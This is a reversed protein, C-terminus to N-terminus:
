FAAALATVLLAVGGLRPRNMLPIEEAHAPIYVLAGPVAFARRKGGARYERSETRPERSEARPEPESFDTSECSVGASDSKVSRHRLIGTGHGAGHASSSGATPLAFSPRGAQFQM